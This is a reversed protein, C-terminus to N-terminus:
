KNFLKLYESYKSNKLKEAPIFELSASNICYRLGTPKPGDNFLHGLHSNAQKSRVETRTMGHSSDRKLIVNEKVLARIFSPWGTGSKFKDTSSFLPEKSVIDVYIGDKKNDWYENKFPRETGDKQTVYYQIQTLTKKLEDDAPKSFKAASKMKKKSKIEDLIYADIRGWTNKIYKERGSGVRYRMYKVPEKLYYDQHYDEAAYFKKFTVIPTVIKKKFIGSKGLEIKSAEAIKKENENQIFIASSYQHGRDFFSGGSDTPDFMRWFSKVLQGYSIKKSDYHVEVAEIHKTRGYAVDKYKPNELDGGSFGSIAKTVGPIKEFPSEICWFCGGAFYAKKDEALIGNTSFIATFFLLLYTKM